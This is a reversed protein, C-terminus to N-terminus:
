TKNKQMFQRRKLTTELNLLDSIEQLKGKEERNIAGKAITEKLHNGVMYSDHWDGLLELLINKKPTNIISQNYHMKKLLKRLAHLQTIPLEKKGTLKTARSEKQKLYADIKEKKVETIYYGAQKYSKNITTLLKQNLITFFRLQKKLRDEKLGNRYNKLAEDNCYKKLMAEEIQIERVKGALKFILKFPKYIKKQKMDNACFNMLEFLAHLKKIEVRLQHFTDSTYAQQPTALYVAINDQRKKFYAIVRKM